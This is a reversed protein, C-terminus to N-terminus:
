LFPLMNKTGHFGQLGCDASATCGNDLLLAVIADSTPYRELAVKLLTNDELEHHSSYRKAQALCINLAKAVYSARSEDSSEMLIRVVRHLPFPAATLARLAAIDAKQFTTRFLLGAQQCPDAGKSVLLHILEVPLAGSATAASFAKSLAADKTGSDVGVQLLSTVINVVKPTELCPGALLHDLASAAIEPTMGNQVFISVAKDNDHDIADWLAEECSFPVRGRSHNMVMKLLDTNEDQVALLAFDSQGIDTTASDLILRVIDRQVPGPLLSLAKKLTNELTLPSPARRMMDGLRVLNGRSAEAAMVCGDGADISAGSALLFDVIQYGKRHGDRHFHVLLQDLIHGRGTTEITEALIRAKEMNLPKHGLVIKLASALATEPIDSAECLLELSKVTAGQRSLALVATGSSDPGIGVPPLVMLIEETAPGPRELTKPVTEDVSPGRAGHSVLMKLVFILAQEQDDLGALAYPMAESAIDPPAGPLLNRVLPANGLRAATSLASEGGRNRYSSTAGLDLLMDVLHRESNRVSLFLQHSLEDGSAGREALSRIIKIKTTEHARGPLVRLADSSAQPTFKATALILLNLSQVAWGLTGTDSHATPCAPSVGFLLLQNLCEINGSKADQLLRDRLAPTDTTAGVLQLFNLLCFRIDPDDIQAALTTTESGGTEVIHKWDHGAALSIAAVASLNQGDIAALLVEYLELPGLIVNALLTSLTEQLDKDTPMTMAARKMAALAAPHKRPHHTSLLLETVRLVRHSSASSMVAVLFGPNDPFDAGLAVLEKEVIHNSGNQIATELAHDLTNQSLGAGFPLHVLPLSSMEVAIQLWPCPTEIKSTSKQLRIFKLISPGTRQGHGQECSWLQQASTGQEAGMTLLAAM